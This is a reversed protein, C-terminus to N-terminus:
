RRTTPHLGEQQQLRIYLRLAVLVEGNLSRTHEEALDRMEKLIAEPLRVTLSKSEEM